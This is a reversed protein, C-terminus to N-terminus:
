EWSVSIHRKWASKGNVNSFMLFCYTCGQKLSEYTQIVPVIKTEGAARHPPPPPSNEHVEQPYSKPPEMGLIDSHDYDWDACHQCNRYSKSNERNENMGMKDLRKRICIGCSRLKTPDILASYRWRPTTSGAHSLICNLTCREPRDDEIVLLRVVVPIAAKAKGSYM